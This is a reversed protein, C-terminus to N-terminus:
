DDNLIKTDERKKSIEKTIVSLAKFKVRVLSKGVSKWLLQRVRTCIHASSDLLINFLSSLQSGTTEIRKTKRFSVIKLIKGPWAITNDNHM